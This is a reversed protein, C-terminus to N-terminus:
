QQPRSQLTYISTGRALLLSWLERKGIVKGVERFTFFPILAVFVVVGRSLIVKLSGAGIAPFIEAMTRGRFMGVVADEVFHFAVIFLTFILCRYLISIILPKDRFLRTGLHLDEGILLVKALVLANIIAFGQAQYNLHQEALIMSEYIGLTASLVWIYVFMGLFEKLQFAAKEKLTLKRRDPGGEEAPHPIGETKM